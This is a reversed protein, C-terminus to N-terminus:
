LGNNIAYMDAGENFGIWYLESDYDDETALEEGVVIGDKEYAIYTYGDQYGRMYAENEALYNSTGEKLDAMDQLIREETWTECAYDFGADFMKQDEIGEGLSDHFLRQADNMQEHAYSASIELNAYNYGDVFDASSVNLGLLAVLVLEKIM